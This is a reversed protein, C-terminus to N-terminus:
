SKLKWHKNRIDERM